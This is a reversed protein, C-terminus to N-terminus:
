HTFLTQVNHRLIAKLDQTSSILLNNVQKCHTSSHVINSSNFLTLIHSCHNSTHAEVQLCLKTMNLLLTHIYSWQTSMFLTHVHSSLKSTHVFYPCTFLTQIPVIHLHTFLTHILLCYTFLTHIHSWLLSIHIHSFHTSMLFFLTSM